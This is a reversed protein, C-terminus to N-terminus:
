ACRPEGADLACGGSEATGSLNGEPRPHTGSRPPGLRPFTRGRCACGWFSRRSSRSPWSVGPPIRTRLSCRGAATGGLLALYIPLHCPCLFFAAGLMLKGAISRQTKLPTTGARRGPEQGAQLRAKPRRRAGALFRRVGEDTYIGSGWSSHRDGRAYSRGGPDNGRLFSVLCPARAAPHGRRGTRLAPVPRGRLERM